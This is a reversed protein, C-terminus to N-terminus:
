EAHAEGTSAEQPLPTPEAQLAQLQADREAVVARLLNLFSLLREELPALSPHTNEM